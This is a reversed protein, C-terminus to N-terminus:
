LWKKFGRSGVCCLWFFHQSGFWILCQLMLEFSKWIWSRRACVFRIMNDYECEFFSVNLICCFIFLSYGLVGL